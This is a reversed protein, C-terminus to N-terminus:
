ICLCDMWFHFCVFLCVFLSLCFKGCDMAIQNITVYIGKNADCTFHRKGTKSLTGDCDGCGAELEIGISRGDYFRCIGYRDDRLLYRKGVAIQLNPVLDTTLRTVFSDQTATNTHKRKPRLKSQSSFGVQEQREELADKKTKEAGQESDVKQEIKKKKKQLPGGKKKGE